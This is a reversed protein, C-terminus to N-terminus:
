SGDIAPYDIYSHQSGGGAGGAGSGGGGGVAVIEYVGTDRLYFTDTLPSKNFRVDTNADYYIRKFILSNGKYISHIREGNKYVNRIKQSGKYVNYTEESYKYTLQFFGNVSPKVDIGGYDSYANGSAGYTHGTYASAAGASSNSHGNNGSSNITTSVIDLNNVSVTGGVGPTGGVYSVGTATTGGTTTLLVTDGMKFTTSAGSVGSCWGSTPGRSAGPAGYGVTVTYWGETLRVLGKYCAGSGGTTSHAHNSM